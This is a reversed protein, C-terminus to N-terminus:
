SRRNMRKAKRTFEEGLPYERGSTISQLKELLETQRRTLKQPTEVIVRV